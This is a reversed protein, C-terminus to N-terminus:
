FPRGVEVTSLGLITDIALQYVVIEKGNADKIPDGQRIGKKIQEPTPSKRATDKKGYVIAEVVKGLAFCPPNEDDVDGNPDFGLSLLEDRFGTFAKDSGEQDWEGDKGKVKVVRFQNIKCGDIDVERDGILVPTPCCIEWVRSLMPNGSSKSPAFEEEICRLTYRDKPFPLKSNWTSLGGETMKRIAM